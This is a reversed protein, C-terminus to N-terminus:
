KAVAPEKAAENHLKKWYESIYGKLRDPKRWFVYKGCERIEDMAEKLFTYARDRIDMAESDLKREGNTAGLLDAMRDALDAATTLKVMDFNVATLLDTNANGLVALDNLDQVMDSSTNGEAIEDIRSLLGENKRFAYRFDHILQDRLDFAAPSEVKWQQEADQRVNREKIWRSQAERCAGARVPLGAVFNWNLGAKTLAEQDDPCWHALNEAEQVFVDVPMTPIIVKEPRIDMLTPLLENYDTTSSM